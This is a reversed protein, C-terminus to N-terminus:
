TSKKKKLDFYVHGDSKKPVPLELRYWRRGKRVGIFKAKIKKKPSKQGLWAVFTTPTDPDHPAFEFIATKGAKVQGIQIAHFELWNVSHEGLDIRKKAQANQPAPKKKVTKDQQAFGNVSITLLAALLINKTM